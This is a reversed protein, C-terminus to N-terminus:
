ARFAMDITERLRQPDHKAYTKETTKLTDGLLGAVDWLSAGSRMLLTASTHRFLHAHLGPVGCRISLRNLMWRVEGGHICVTESTREAYARELVPRLRSSIPSVTRRKRTRRRGPKNFDIVGTEFDVRAWTLELIASSRALTEVALWVFIELRSLTGGRRERVLCSLVADLEAPKLWRPRPEPAPPMKFEPAADILKDKLARNLAARLL